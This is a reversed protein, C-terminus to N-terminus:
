ITIRRNLIGLRRVAQEAALYLPDHASSISPNYCYEASLLDWVSGKAKMAISVRNVYEVAKEGYACAGIVRGHDNYYLEIYVKEGGIWDPKSYATIRAVNGSFKGVSAIENKGLMCSFANVSGEYEAYGGAINISAVIAQKIAPVALKAAMGNSLARSNTCDGCAYISKIPTMMREDVNVYGQENLIERPCFDTSPQVGMALLITDCVIKEGNDLHVIKKEDGEVGVIKCSTRVDVGSEKLKKEVFGSVRESVAGPLLRPMMEILTVDVVNSIEYSVEVGIPGGGVVCINKARKITNTIREADEVYKLTYVNKVDRSIFKPVVPEVGSAVVLYDYKISMEREGACTVERTTTNIDVVKTSLFIYVNKLKPFPHVLASPKIKGGISMPLGCPSYTPYKRKEIVTIKSNPDLVKLWRVVTMGATGLGIVVVHMAGMIRNNNIIGAGEKGMMSEIMVACRVLVIPSSMNVRAKGYSCLALSKIIMTTMISKAM